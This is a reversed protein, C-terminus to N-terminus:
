DVVIYCPQGWSVDPNKLMLDIMIPLLFALINKADKIQERNVSGQWTAAGHFIQNRLVYLRDFILHLILATDENRLASLSMEKSKELRGEWNSDNEDNNYNNWFPQFVFKNRMLNRIPDSFRTWLANYILRQKDLKVIKVFFLKYAGREGEVSDYYEMKERAYLANFALWYFIFDSDDDDDHRTARAFWSLSRHVRLSVFEPISDQLEHKRKLLQEYTLEGDHM